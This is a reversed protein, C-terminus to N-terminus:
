AVREVDYQLYRRTLGDERRAALANMAACEREAARRFLFQRHLQTWPNRISRVVVEYRPTPTLVRLYVRLAKALQEPWVTALILVGLLYGEVFLEGSV